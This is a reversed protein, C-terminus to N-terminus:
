ILLIKELLKNRKPWNVNKSAEFRILVERMKQQIKMLRNYSYTTKITVDCAFLGSILDYAYCYFFLIFACCVKPNPSTHLGNHIKFHSQSEAESQSLSFSHERAADYSSDGMSSMSMDDPVANERQTKM